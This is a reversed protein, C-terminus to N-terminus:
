EAAPNIGEAQFHKQLARIPIGQNYAPQHLPSFNPDGSHHLAVLKWNVNFCPSGSSGRLTSTTYRLRTGNANIELSGETDLALKLPDGEPHQLIFIPEGPKVEPAADALNFYGRRPADPEVVKSVRDEAPRDRVRLLAFDLEKDGPLSGPAADALDALSYPSSAILWHEQGDEDALDLFYATGGNLDVGNALRKYDFRLVTEQANAQKKLIPEIVHYNTLVTGPGVLFGTGYSVVAGDRCVEVRCVRLEAQGLGARWAAVDLQGQGAKIIRQLEKVGISVPTLQFNQAFEQLRANGPRSERAAGILQWTWGQSEAAEIVKYIDGELSGTVALADLTRGLRRGLMMEFQLRVPFADLLALILEDQQNPNLVGMFAEPAL